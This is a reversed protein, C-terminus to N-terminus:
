TDNRLRFGHRMEDVLCLGGIGMATGYNVIWALVGFALGEAPTAGYLTVMAAQAFGQYLGLAGPTPAITVGVAVVVLMVCADGFGFQIPTVFPIAQFVLLLPIAYLVWMAVSEVALMPWIRPSKIVLSGSRVGHVIGALRDRWKKSLPKGLKSILREGWDTFAIIVILAIAVIIPILTSVISTTVSVNPFVKIFLGSQFIIIIAIAFLLTLVDLMREMVVSSLAASAPVQAQKSLVIPRILEGSRPVVTNAAYGIMVASFARYTKIIHSYQPLLRKWRRARIWHSIIILPVCLLLIWVNASNLTKTFADIDTLSFVWWVAIGFIVIAIVIRLFQKVDM